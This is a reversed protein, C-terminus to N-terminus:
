EKKDKLFSALGGLLNKALYGNKVLIDVAKQSRIGSQCYCVVDKSKDLEGLREELNALPIHMGGLHFNEREEDTRVDLISYTPDTLCASFQTATIVYGNSVDAECSLRYEEPDIASAHESCVPCAANKSLQIKNLTLDMSEVMLLTNELTTALGALYKIAENAQLTGLLGPLVGIVGATNCDAINQPAEPFLCRFCASEPTFLACQGSFQYISAFIWPKKLRVCTDNILYRTAFNDTCDLVLDAQNVLGEVNDLSLHEAIANVTIEPNLSLLRQKACEAKSQGVQETGFIIQRQLNTLEIHDGDILTITGVGAAALYLSVPSGLGGAGVILVHGEKLRRQGSAGFRPLQLHRTYRLWEDGSFPTETSATTNATEIMTM